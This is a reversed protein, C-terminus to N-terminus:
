ETTGYKKDRECFDEAVNGYGLETLEDTKQQKRRFWDMRQQVTKSIMGMWWGPKDDESLKGLETDEDDEDKADEEDDSSALNSLSDGMDNLMEQFMQKPERTTLGTNEIKRMDEREQKMATAANEVRKSAAGSEREVYDEIWKEEEKNKLFCKRTTARSCGEKQIPLQAISGTSLSM